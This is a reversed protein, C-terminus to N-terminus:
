ARVKPKFLPPASRSPYVDGGDFLDFYGDPWEGSYRCEFTGTSGCQMVTVATGDKPMYIGDRWGLAQLRSYAKMMADLCDQETELKM